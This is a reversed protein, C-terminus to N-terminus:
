VGRVFVFFSNKHLAGRAAARKGHAAVRLGVEEVVFHFLVSLTHLNKWEAGRVGKPFIRYVTRDYFTNTFCFISCGIPGRRAAFPAAVLTQRLGRRKISAANSKWKATVAAM